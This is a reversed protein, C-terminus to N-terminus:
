ASTPGQSVWVLTLDDVIPGRDELFRGILRTLPSVGVDEQRCRDVLEVLSEAALCHGLRDPTETLADSYLFLVSGCPFPVVSNQYSAELSIGLPLGSGDLLHVLPNAIAPSPAGAAAYTMRGHPSDIVALFMTAFQGRPLLAVLKANLAALYAAPDDGPDPMMQNMLTHLRFTNLAAALGHGAFDIIAVATRGESLRHLSWLDGGLEASPQFLSAIALGSAQQVASQLEQRPLLNEQMYRALELEWTM